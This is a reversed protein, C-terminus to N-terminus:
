RWRELTAVRARLDIVALAIVVQAVDASGAIINLLEADM